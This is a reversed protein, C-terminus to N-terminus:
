TLTRPDTGPAARPVLGPDIPEGLHHIRWCSSPVVAIEPRWVVTVHMTAPVRDISDNTDSDTEVLRVYAVDPADLGYLATMSIKLGTDFVSRARSFDGWSGLSEPTVLAEALLADSAPQPMALATRFVDVFLAPHWDPLTEYALRADDEETWGTRENTM